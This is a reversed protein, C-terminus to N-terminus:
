RTGVARVKESDCHVGRGPLKTGRHVCPYKTHRVNSCFGRALATEGVISWLLPIREKRVDTVNLGGVGEFSRLFNM